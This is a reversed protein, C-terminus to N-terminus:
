KSLKMLGLEQARKKAIEDQVGDTKELWVSYSIVMTIQSPIFCSRSIIGYDAWEELRAHLQPTISITEEEFCGDSCIDNFILWKEQPQDLVIIEKSNLTEILQKESTIEKM